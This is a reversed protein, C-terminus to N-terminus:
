QDDTLQTNLSAAWRQTLSDALFDRVAQQTVAPENPAHPATLLLHTKLTDHYQRREDSTPLDRAGKAVVFRRMDTVDNALVRQVVHQRMARAYLRRMPEYLQHGSYMGFRMYLPAGDSEYGRLTEVVERVPELDALNLAGASQRQAHRGIRDAADQADAALARNALYAYMPIVSLVLATAFAALLRATSRIM